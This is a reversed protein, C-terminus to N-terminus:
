RRCASASSPLAGKANLSPIQNGGTGPVRGPSTTFMAGPERVLFPPVCFTYTQQVRGCCQVLSTHGAGDVGYGGAGLNAGVVIRAKQSISEAALKAVFPRSTNKESWTSASRSRMVPM